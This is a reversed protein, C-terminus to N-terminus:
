LFFEGAPRPVDDKEGGDEGAAASSAAAIEEATALPDLPVPLNTPLQIWAWSVPAPAASEGGNELWRRVSPAVGGAPGRAVAAAAAAAAASAPSQRRRAWEASAQALPLTIPANPAQPPQM